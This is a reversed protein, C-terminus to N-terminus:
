QKMLIALWTALAGLSAQQPAALGALPGWRQPAHGPGLLALEGEERPMRSLMLTTVRSHLLVKHSLLVFAQLCAPCPRLAPDLGSQQAQTSRRDRRRVGVAQAVGLARQVSPETTRLRPHRRPPLMCAAAGSCMPLHWPPAPEAHAAPGQRRGPAWRTHPLQAAFPCWPRRAPSTCACSRSPATSPLPRGAAPHGWEAPAGVCPARPPACAALDHCAGQQVGASPM